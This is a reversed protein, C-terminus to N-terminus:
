GLGILIGLFLHKLFVVLQAGNNAVEEIIKCAKDITKEKDLFYPSVQAAAVKVVENM